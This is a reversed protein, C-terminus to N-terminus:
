KQRTLLKREKVVVGHLSKGTLYGERAIEACQKYGPSPKLVTVIRLANLVM